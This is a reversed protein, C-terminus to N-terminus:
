NLWVITHDDSWAFDAKNRASISPRDAGVRKPWKSTTFSVVANRKVEGVGFAWDSRLMIGEQDALCIEVGNEASDVFTADVMPSIRHATMGALDIVVIAPTTYVKGIRVAM